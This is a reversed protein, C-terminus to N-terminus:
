FYFMQKEYNVNCATQILMAGNDPSNVFLCQDTLWNRLFFKGPYGLAPEKIYAALPSACSAVGIESGYNLSKPTICYGLMVSPLYVVDTGFLTADVPDFAKPDSSYCAWQFIRVSDVSGGAWTYPYLCKDSYENHIKKLGETNNLEHFVATGNQDIDEYSLYKNGLTRERQRNRCNENPGFYEVKFRYTKGNEFLSSDYSELEDNTYSVGDWGLNGVKRYSVKFKYSSWGTPNNIACEPANWTLLVHGGDLIFPPNVGQANTSQIFVILLLMCGIKKIHKNM